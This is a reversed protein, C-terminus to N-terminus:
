QGAAELILQTIEDPHSILSLHSAKVEVTKAGMRKAMFRELDPNITRDETSVAYWSPKSRWAAQTTKGTLLAKQFPQQVAYLVKARAEPLDGAFDRLFAAENLRGEDGDFVIGASAPPTPFTKALATYDEGADPARAAVYVLASVNPHVGAETVMMGSFSHGVLVTPGDQRDLVRKVAAVADPLTTLPNQAATANLGAAQLRAIVETWCSGDAFLGHVLVVNRAKVPASTAAMGRSSLLTAAAGAVLAASFTRRNMMM